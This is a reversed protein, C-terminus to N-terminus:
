KGSNKVALGEELWTTGLKLNGRWKKRRFRVPGVPDARRRRSRVSGQRLERWTRGSDLRQMTRQRGQKQVRVLGFFRGEQRMSRAREIGKRAKTRATRAPDACGGGRVLDGAATTGQKQEEREDRHALLVLSAVAANVADEEKSPGARVRSALAEGLGLTGAQRRREM